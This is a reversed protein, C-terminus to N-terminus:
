ASPTTNGFQQLRPNQKRHPNKHSPHIQFYPYPDCLRPNRNCGVPPRAERVGPHVVNGFYWDDGAPDIKVENFLANRVVFYFIGWDVYRFEITYPAMDPNEDDEILMLELYNDSGDVFWVLRAFEERLLPVIGVPILCAAQGRSLPFWFTADDSRRWLHRTAIFRSCSSFIGTVFMLYAIMSKHKDQREIYEMLEEQRILAEYVAKKTSILESELADVQSVAANLLELEGLRKMASAPLSTTTFEPAPSSPPGSEEECVSDVVMSAISQASDSEGSWLGKLACFPISRSFTVLALFFSVIVTWIHVRNRNPCNETSSPIKKAILVLTNLPISSKSATTSTPSNQTTAQKGKWGVDVAKDVMPIYEDHESFGVAAHNAKGVLRALLLLTSEIVLFFPVIRISRPKPILLKYEPLWTFRITRRALLRDPYGLCVVCWLPLKPFKAPTLNLPHSCPVIPIVWAFLVGSPSNRFSRRLSTSLILVPSQSTIIPPFILIGAVMYIRDSVEGSHLRSSSFLPCDVKGRKPEGTREVLHANWIWAGCIQAGLFTDYDDEDDLSSGDDPDTETRSPAAAPPPQPPRLSSSPPPMVGSTTGQMTQMFAYMQSVHSKWQDFKASQTDITTQLRTVDTEYRQKWYEM